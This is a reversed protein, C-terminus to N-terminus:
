LGEVRAMLEVINPAPVAGSKINENRNEKAQQGRGQSRSQGGQGRGRPMPSPPRVFGEDSVGSTTPGRGQARMRPPM